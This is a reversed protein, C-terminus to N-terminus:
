NQLKRMWHIFLAGLGSVVMMIATLNQAEISRYIDALNLDVLLNTNYWRTVPIVLFPALLVFVQMGLLEADNYGQEINIFTVIGNLRKLNNLIMDEEPHKDKKGTSVGGNEKAILLIRCLIQLWITPMRNKVIEMQEVYDPKALAEKIKLIHARNSKPCRGITDELAPIVNGNYHSYYHTLKKITNSLDRGIRKEYIEFYVQECMYMFIITSFFCLVKHYWLGNFTNYAFIFYLLGLLTLVTVLMLCTIYNQYPARQNILTLRNCLKSLLINDRYWGSLIGHLHAKKYRKGGITSV